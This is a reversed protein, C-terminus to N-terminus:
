TDGCVVQSFSLPPDSETVNTVLSIMVKVMLLLVLLWTGDTRSFALLLEQCRGEWASSPCLVLVTKIQMIEDACCDLAITSM